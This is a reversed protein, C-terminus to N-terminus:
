RGPRRSLPVCASVTTGQGPTGRITMRGGVLEIRERMGLLGLAHAGLREAETIGRGDDAVEVALQGDHTQVAVRAHRARAHRAVNTLAEQVMRFLATSANVDLALAVRTGRFACAIGTRARFEHVQWRIAALLGLDDLEPPRLDASIRRVTDLTGAILQAMKPIKELIRGPPRLQAVEKELAALQLRLGTLAQGLEDHMERGIRRGEEERSSQLRASLARLQERSRRLEDEARKRETVDESVGAIRYVEGSENRIPFARSRIWRIVGDPRVIRFEEDFEGTLQKPLATFIRERDDLHVSELLSTRDVCAPDRAWIERYAPSVYLIDGTAPDTLWLVERINEVLERLRQDSL